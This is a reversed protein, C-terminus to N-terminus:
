RGGSYHGAVLRGGRYHGAVGPDGASLVASAALVLAALVAVLIATRWAALASM